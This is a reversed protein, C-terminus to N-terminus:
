KGKKATEKKACAAPKKPEVLGDVLDAWQQMM